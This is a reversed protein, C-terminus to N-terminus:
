SPNYEEIHGARISCPRWIWVGTQARFMNEQNEPGHIFTISNDQGPLQIEVEVGPAGFAGWPAEGEEMSALALDYSGNLDYLTIIEQGERSESSINDYVNTNGDTSELWTDVNYRTGYQDEVIWTVTITIESSESGYNDEAITDGVGTTGAENDNEEKIDSVIAHIRDKEDSKAQNKVHVQYAKYGGVVLMFMLIGMITKVNIIVQKTRYKIYLVFCILLISMEVFDYEFLTWYKYTGIGGVRLYFYNYIVLCLLELFYKYEKKSIKSLIITSAIKFAASPVGRIMLLSHLAQRNIPSLLLDSIMVASVAM